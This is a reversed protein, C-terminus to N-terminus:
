EFYKSIKKSNIKNKLYNTFKNLRIFPIKQLLRKIFKIYIENGEFFLDEVGHNKGSNKVKYNEFTKSRDVKMVVISEFFQYSYVFNKLSFNKYNKDLDFDINSNLNDILNKTFNIFSYKFSSNYAEIYSSHTDETVLMGGNRINPISKVVTTIQDLNTHGGDDLVIDVLGFKKFFKNWFEESSQNGIEVHIDNGLDEFIKCKENLDIGIIKSDKGFFNKWIKLSGGNAIGIEVFTVKTNKYKSFLEEYVSFYKKWKISQNESKLFEKELESM